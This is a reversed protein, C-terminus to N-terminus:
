VAGPDAPLSLHVRVRAAIARTVPGRRGLALARVLRAGDLTLLGLRLLARGLLGFHKRAYAHWSAALLVSLAPTPLESSKGGAHVAVVAPTFYTRWGRAKARILWDLEESYVFFREDLFGVDDLAARRIVLFAGSAADVVRTEDYGWDLMRYRLARSWRPFRRSASIAEAVFDLPRPARRCSDQRSGDENLLKVGVAAARADSAFLREVDEWSGRVSSVDPNLLLVFEGDTAALARNVAAAFGENRPPEILVAGLRGAAEAARGDTADNNVVVVRMDGHYLAGAGRLAQELLHGSGYSVVVVDLTM